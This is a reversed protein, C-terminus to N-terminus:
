YNTNLIHKDSHLSLDKQHQTEKNQYLLKNFCM